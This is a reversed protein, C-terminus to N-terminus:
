LVRMPKAPIGYALMGDPIDKNVLSHAGVASAKGISVGQLVTVHLGLYADDGISVPGSSNPFQSEGLMGKGVNTHTNLTAHHSIAVRNGIHVEDELDLLCYRGIYTDKGIRLNKYPPKSAANHVLFPAQIRVGSEIQAGYRKLVYVLMSSPLVRFMINIGEYGYAKYLVFALFRILINM